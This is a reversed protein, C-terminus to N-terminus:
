PVLAPECYAWWGADSPSYDIAPKANEGCVLTEANSFPWEIPEGKCPVGDIPHDALWDTCPQVWTTAPGETSSQATAPQPAVVVSDKGAGDGMTQADWYCNDSDETACPPLNTPEPTATVTVAPEPQAAPGETSHPWVAAVCLVVAAGAGAGILASYRNKM